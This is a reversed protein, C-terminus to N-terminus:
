VPVDSRGQYQHRGGRCDSPRVTKSFASHPRLSRPDDPRIHRSISGNKGGYFNVSRHKVPFRRRWKPSLPPRAREAQLSAPSRKVSPHHWFSHRIVAFTSSEPSHKASLSPLPTLDTTKRSIWRLASWKEPFSRGNQPASFIRSALICWYCWDSGTFDIFVSKGEAAATKFAGDIDETWLQAVCPASKVAVSSMKKAKCSSCDAAAVAGLAALAVSLAVIGEAITKM